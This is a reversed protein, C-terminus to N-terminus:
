PCVVYGSEIGFTAGTQAKLGTCSLRARLAPLPEDFELTCTGSGPSTQDPYVGNDANGELDVRFYVRATKKGKAPADWSYLELRDDGRQAAMGAVLGGQFCSVDSVFRHEGALRSGTVKAYIGPATPYGAPPPEPKPPAPDPSGGTSGTGGPTPDTGGGSGM